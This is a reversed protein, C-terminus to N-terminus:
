AAVVAPGATDREFLINLVSTSSIWDDFQFSSMEQELLQQHEITWGYTNYLSSYVEPNFSQDFNSMDTFHMDWFEEKFRTAYGRYADYGETLQLIRNAVTQIPPLYPCVRLLGIAVGKMLSERSVDLPPSNIFGIKSLVKGPMPGFVFKGGVKYLRCSCFEAEHLDGRIIAESKFGLKKMHPVFDVARGNITMLNDDGAVLMRVKKKIQKINWGHEKHIIFSHMLSNLMSNFLTTFPDGSKRGGPMWYKGGLLTTGHTQNNARMLKIIAESAGFKKAVWVEFECFEECVSSDFTSIDDEIVTWDEELVSAADVCDVGSTFCAWNRANWITKFHDQLAMFWPGLIVLYYLNLLGQIARAAKHKCGM